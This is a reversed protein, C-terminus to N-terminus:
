WGPNQTLKPNKDIESQPIPFLYHKLLFTRTERIPYTYVNSSSISVYHIPRNDTIEAIKWRRVDWFRHDEFAMEVQRERRIRDRMQEKTLGPQVDPMDARKRIVNLASYVQDDPGSFENQAEALDLYLESLRMLIWPRYKLNTGEFLNIEEAMFKRLFYNTPPHDTKLDAGGPRVDVVHNKWTMGQAVITQYFRPDRNVYPNQPNYGSSPDNPLLGNTMEYADVMEQTPGTGYWGGVANSQTVQDRDGDDGNRTFIAEPNNLELFIREYAKKGNLPTLCLGYGNSEAFTIAETAAISATQWRSIVSSPNHLPSAFYLATRAWLFKCAASTMRGFQSDVHRAPLLPIAADIDKKIFNVVEETSNRTLIIGSLESPDLSKDILPVGGWMRFLEFYFYARLAHAEGLLRKKRNGDIEDEPIKDYNGIFKNIRRISNYFNFWYQQMPFNQPNWSGSNFYNCDQGNDWIQESEDTGSSLLWNNDAGLKFIDPLSNYSNNLFKEANVISKFVDEEPIFDSPTRELYDKKCSFATASIILLLVFFTKAYPTKM